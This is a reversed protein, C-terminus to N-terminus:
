RLLVWCRESLHYDSERRSRLCFLRPRRRLLVMGVGLSQYRLLYLLGYGVRRSRFSRPKLYPRLSSPYLLFLSENPVGWWWLGVSWCGVLYLLFLNRNVSKGQLSRWFLWGSRPRSLPDPIPLSRVFESSPFKLTPSNPSQSRPFSSTSSPIRRSYGIPVSARRLWLGRVLCCFFLIYLWFLLVFVSSRLRPKDKNREEKYVSFTFSKIRIVRSRTVM